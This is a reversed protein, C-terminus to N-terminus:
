DKNKVTYNSAQLGHKQLKYILTSRPLGMMAAAGKKGSIVGNTKILVKEIHQRESDSLVYSDEEKVSSIEKTIEKVYEKTEYQKLLPEIIEAQIEEGSNLILLRKLTNSFERLNGPWHYDCLLGLASSSFTIPKCQMENTFLSLMHKILGPIENERERLPPIHIIATGLRYYLDKRFKKNHMLYELPANTASIFRVDVNISNSEGVREFRLDQLVQLLKAQLNKGLDGIEDLFISGKDALEFRGIRQSQAGTFAGKAHGFLESEFLSPSLSPCNIKVFNHLNRSSNQHLFHAIYEKGTGTEGCIMVPVNSTALLRVQQIVREMANCEYFFRTEAYLVDPSKFLEGVKQKLSSNLKQLQRHALMNDVALAVQISIKELFVIVQKDVEEMPRVFSTNLAGLIKDQSILPMVVSWRLGSKIMEKVAGHNAYQNLDPIIIPARRKIAERALPGRIPAHSDDMGFVSIGESHAFWELSDTDPNYITLSCRDCKVLPQLIMALNRFLGEQTKERVLVNSILLLSHYFNSPLECM